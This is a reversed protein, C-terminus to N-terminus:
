SDPVQQKMSSNILNFLPLCDMSTLFLCFVAFYLEGCNMVEETYLCLVNKVFNSLDEPTLSFLWIPVTQSSYVTLISLLHKDFM